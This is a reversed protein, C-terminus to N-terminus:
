AVARPCVADLNSVDGLTKAMAGGKVAVLIARLERAAHQAMWLEFAEATMPRGFLFGQVHRCGHSTVFALQEPTEVGEAVSEYGLSRAMALITQVIVMASKDVGIGATFTRDIKFADFPLRTLHALSSYGTGFDDIAFRIGGGRMADVARAVLETNAMAMSETLELELLHAPLGTREVIELVTEAFGDALFQAQSINVAVRLNGGARAWIAGQRCATELVWAGIEVILGTEEAIDMFTGPALVGRVPHHWRLLAEVGVVTGGAADIQPQYYLEFEHHAMATRLEGEMRVRDSAIRDFEADYYRFGSGGGNKAQYMAIDANKLLGTCTTADSPYAAIGISAGVVISVGAIDIPAAVARVINVAFDGAASVRIRGPLLVAFEDGGLRAVVPQEPLRGTALVAGSRGASLVPGDAIGLERTIRGAIELLLRDGVDHGYTDNVRKFRDLDIFLVALAEGTQGAATIAAELEQRFRERNFLKTVDDVFALWHIHELNERIRHVMDRYARALVGIEDRRDVPFPADFDGASVRHATQTLHRVPKLFGNGFHFTIPMAIALLFVAIVANRQWITWIVTGAEPRVIGIFAAGLIEGGHARIAVSIEILDGALRFTQKGTELVRAMDAPMESADFYSTAPNGDVSINRAPDFVQVHRVLPDAVISELEQELILYHHNTLHPVALRSVTVAVASARDLAKKEEDRLDLYSAAMIMVITLGCFLSVVLLIFRVRLSATLLRMENLWSQGATKDRGRM